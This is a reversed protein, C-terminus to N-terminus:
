YYIVASEESKIKSILVWINPHQRLFSVLKHNYGELDNNTRKGDNDFQNWLAKDFYSQCSGESREVYTNLVYDAWTEIEDYPPKECLLETFVNDVQDIPVLALATVKKVWTKLIPDSIYAEKLWCSVVHRLLSQGFHFFCCLIKINPFHFKFANIASMEFDIM